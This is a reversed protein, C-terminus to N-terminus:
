GDSPKNGVRGYRCVMANPLKDDNPERALLRPNKKKSKKKLWITFRTKKFYACYEFQERVVWSRSSPRTRRRGFLVRERIISGFSVSVTLRFTKTTAGHRRLFNNPSTGMTRNLGFVYLLIRTQNCHCATASASIRTSMVDCRDM